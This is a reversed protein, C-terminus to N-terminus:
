YLVEHIGGQKQRQEELSTKDKFHAQKQEMTQQLRETTRKANDAVEKFVERLDVKSWDVRQFEEVTLGRCQPSDASGFGLGLQRRAQEQFVRAMKTEYCCYVQERSLVVGAVKNKDRSGIFVCRAQTRAAQLEQEEASCKTALHMNVGLGGQGKCCDKFASGFNTTCRKGQGPFVSIATGQVKKDVGAKNMVDLRALAELMNKNTNYPSDACEGNLCFPTTGGVLRKTTRTTEYCRYTSKYRKCIKRDGGISQWEECLSEVPDCGLAELSQCTNEARDQPTGLRYTRTSEWYDRRVTEGNIVRAENFPGMQEDELEAVGQAHLQDLEECGVWVDKKEIVRRPSVQRTTVECGYCYEDDTVARRWGGSHWGGYPCYSETKSVAEIVEIEVIRRRGCRQVYSDGSKYCTKLAGGEKHVVEEEHADFAKTPDNLVNSLSKNEINLSVIPRDNHNKNIQLFTPDSQSLHTSQQRLSGDDLQSQPPTESVSLGNEKFSKFASANEAEFIGKSRDVAEKGFAAGSQNATQMGAFCTSMLCSGLVTWCVSLVKINM